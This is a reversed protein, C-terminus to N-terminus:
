GAFGRVRREVLTRDEMETVIMAAIAENSQGPYTVIAGSEFNVHIDGGRSENRVVERLMPIPAVIEDHRGEGIMALRPDNAPFYGGEALGPPAWGMYGSNGIINAYHIDDHGDAIPTSITENGRGTAIAAHGAPGWSSDFWVSAGAPANPDGQRLVGIDLAHIGHEFATPARYSGFGAADDMDDMFKECWGNWTVGNAQQTESLHRIAQDVVSGWAGTPVPPGTPAAIGGNMLFPQILNWANDIQGQGYYVAPREAHYAVDVLSGELNAPNFFGMARGYDGEMFRAAAAADYPDVQGAYQGGPGAEIQWYGAGPGGGGQAVNQGGTELMAGMLMAMQEGKDATAALIAAILDGAGSIGGGGSKPADHHLKPWLSKVLSVIGDAASGYLSHGVGAMEGKLDLHPIHDTVASTVKDIGMSLLNGLADKAGGLLDKAVNVIDGVGGAFGPIGAGLLQETLSNPLVTAGTPLDPIFTPSSILEWGSLPGTNRDGQRKVLERGDEGVIAAGGSHGGTGIAYAQAAAATPGSGPAEIKNVQTITFNKLDGIDFFNGVAHVAGEIGKLFDNILQIAQNIPGRMNDGLGSFGKMFANVIQTGAGELWPVATKDVWKGIEDIIKGLEGPLKPVVDAIWKIFAVGWTLMQEIIAPIQQIVWLLLRTFLTDLEIVLLPIHVAVWAIFKVGWILMQAIIAPVQALVWGLFQVLLLALEGILPPIQPAVWKIFEAGWLLLQKGLDLAKEGLWGLFRLMLKGLEEVMPEVKPGIWALFQAGWEGLKGLLKLSQEGIWGLLRLTLKGLEEIMPEIKPGVWAAFQVGWEGLKELLKVSQEGIWGLLRLTLKGLEEVMPEIKPAVWKAFQLGWEGLKELIKVAQEGIWGLFRLELKGLEELMPQIHPEVWAVFQKGWAKLATLLKPANETVSAIGRLALDKLDDAILRIAAGLGKNKFTDVIENIADHFPKYHEYLYVFGAALAAIGVVVLGVPSTIVTLAQAFARLDKEILLATKLIVITGAFALVAEGAAKLLAPHDRTWGSFEKLKGNVEDLWVALPSKTVPGTDPKGGTPTPAGSGAGPKPLNDGLLKAQAAADKLGRATAEAEQKLLSQASKAEDLKTKIEGLRTKELELPALGDKKAQTAEDLAKKYPALALTRTATAAADLASNHAQEDSIKKMATAYPELLKLKEGENKKIDDTLKKRADADDDQAQKKAKEELALKGEIVKKDAEGRAQAAKLDDGLQRLSDAKAKDAAAAQRNLGRIQEEGAKKQDAIGEKIATAQRTLGVIRAEDARKQDAIGETVSQKERELGVIREQMAKRQDAIGETIAKAQRTLDVIRGEDAKKQDAIGETIEKKEHELGVIREQMGKRQDAIGETIAKAQRTLDVIREQDARKTEAQALRTDSRQQELLHLQGKLGTQDGTYKQEIGVKQASVSAYQSRLASTDAGAGAGQIEASLAALQNKLGSTDPAPQSIADRVHQIKEDLESTNLGHIEDQIAQIQSTIGSTAAAPDLASMASKIADIQNTLGQTAAQPDLAAMADRIGQITDTIGRTAAEPDLAASKDRIAQITDTISKTAAEPDLSAMADQIDQTQKKFPAAVDTDQLTDIQKQTAATYSSPDFAALKKDDAKIADDWTGTDLRPMADLTGKDATIANDYASTNPRSLELTAKQKDLDLEQKKRALEDSSLLNTRRINEEATKIVPDYTNKVGQIAAANQDLLVKNAALEANLGQMVQTAAAGADKLEGLFAAADKPGISGNPLSLADNVIAVARAAQDKATTELTGLNAVTEQIGKQGNPFGLAVDLAGAATRVNALADTHAQAGDTAKTAAAAADDGGQVQSANLAKQAATAQDTATKQEDMGKKLASLGPVNFVVGLADGLQTLWHIVEKIYPLLVTGIELAFLTVTNKLIAMQASATNLTRNYADQTPSLKGSQVDALQSLIDKYDAAANGSLALAGQGGRLAPILKTVISQDGTIEIVKQLDAMIGSLGQTQLGTISFDRVLDVGTAKSLAVIEDKAAKAPAIIHTMMGVVQTGAEDVPIGIRTMASMAAVVDNLGVGLNAATSLARGSSSVFQELTTNGLAAGLHLEDMTKAADATAIHFTHMVTALTNATQGLDAGTSVASKMAADVIKTADAVGYGENAAHRFGEAISNMSAPSGAAMTRIATDMQAMDATTLTTNAQVQNLTTQWDVAAKVSAGLGLTVAALGAVVLGLPGVFGSAAMSAVNTAQGFGGMQMTAVQLAQSTGGLATKLSGHAQTHNTIAATAKTVESSDMKLVMPATAVRQLQQIGQTAKTVGGDIASTDIGIKIKTTAELQRIRSNLQQVASDYGAFDVLTELRLNGVTLTGGISM